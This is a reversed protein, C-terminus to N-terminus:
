LALERYTLLVWLDVWEGWFGRCNVCLLDVNLDRYTLLVELSNWIVLGGIAIGAVGAMICLILFSRNM